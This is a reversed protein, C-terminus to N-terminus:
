VNLTFFGRKERGRQRCKGCGKWAKFIMKTIMKFIQAIKTNGVGRQLQKSKLTTQYM